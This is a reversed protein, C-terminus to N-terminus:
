GYVVSRLREDRKLQRKIKSRSFVFGLPQSESPFDISPDYNRGEAEEAEALQVLM